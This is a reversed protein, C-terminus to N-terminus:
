LIVLVVASSAFGAGFTLMAAVLQCGCARSMKQLVTLGREGTTVMRKAEIRATSDAISEGHRAAAAKIAHYYLERAIEREQPQLRAPEVSVEPVLSNRAIACAQEETLPIDLSAAVASATETRINVLCSYFVHDHTDEDQLDELSFGLREAEEFFRDTTMDKYFMLEAPDVNM